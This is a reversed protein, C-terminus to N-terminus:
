LPVRKSGPFLTSGLEVQSDSGVSVRCWRRGVEAYLSGRREVKWAAGRFPAVESALIADMALRNDLAELCYSIEREAAEDVPVAEPPPPPAVLPPEGGTAPNVRVRAPAALAEVKVAPVAPAAKVSAVAPPKLGAPPKGSPAAAPRSRNGGAAGRKGAGSVSGAVVRRVAGDM